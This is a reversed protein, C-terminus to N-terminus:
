RAEQLGAWAQDEEPNNWDKAWAAESAAALDLGDDEVAITLIVRTPGTFPLPEVTHIRGDPGVTAEIAKLTVAM